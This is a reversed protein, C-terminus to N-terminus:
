LNLIDITDVTLPLNYTWYLIFGGLVYWCGIVDGVSVGDFQNSLVRKVSRLPLEELVNKSFDVYAVTSGVSVEWVEDPITVAKQQSCIFM